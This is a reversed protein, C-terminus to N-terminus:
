RRLLLTVVGVGTRLVGLATPGPTLPLAPHDSSVLSVERATDPFRSPAKLPTGTM